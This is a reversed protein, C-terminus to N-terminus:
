GCPYLIRNQLSSVPYIQIFRSSKPDSYMNKEYSTDRIYAFIDMLVRLIDVFTAPICVLDTNEKPDSSVGVAISPIRFVPYQIKQISPAQKM